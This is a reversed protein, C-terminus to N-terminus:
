MANFFFRRPNTNLLFYIRHRDLNYSYLKSLHFFITFDNTNSLLFSQTRCLRQCYIKLQPFSSFIYVNIHSNFRNNIERVFLANDYLSFPAISLYKLCIFMMIFVFILLSYKNDSITPGIVCWYLCIIMGPTNLVSSIM